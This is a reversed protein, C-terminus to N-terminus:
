ARCPRLAPLRGARCRSPQQGVLAMVLGRILTRGNNLVVAQLALFGFVVLLLPLRFEAGRLGLLGGLVGVLGSAAFAAAYRAPGEM